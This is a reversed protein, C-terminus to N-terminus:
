LPQQLIVAVCGLGFDAIWFGFDTQEMSAAAAQSM